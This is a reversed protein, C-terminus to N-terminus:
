HKGRLDSCETSIGAEEGPNLEKSDPTLLSELLQSPSLGCKAAEDPLHVATSDHIPFLAAM